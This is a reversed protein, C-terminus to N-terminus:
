ARRALRGRKRPHDSLTAVARAFVTAMSAVEFDPTDLSGYRYRSVPNSM